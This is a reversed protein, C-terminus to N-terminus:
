TRIEGALRAVGPDIPLGLKIAKQMLGSLNALAKAHRREAEQRDSTGYTLSASLHGGALLREALKRAMVGEATQDGYYDAAELFEQALAKRDAGDDAGLESPASASPTHVGKGHDMATRCIDRFSDLTIAGNARIEAEKTLVLMSILAEIRTSLEELNVPQRVLGKTGLERMWLAHTATSVDWGHQDAYERIRRAEDYTFRGSITRVRGVNKASNM